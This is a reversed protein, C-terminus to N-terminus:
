AQNRFYDETITVSKLEYLAFASSGPKLATKDIIKGDVVAVAHGTIMVIFRGNTLSHLLRGLSIGEQRKVGSVKEMDYARATKGFVGVLKLGAKSYAKHYVKRTAGCRFRRGAASLMSHAEAYDYIGLNALARVTCDRAETANSTGSCSPYLM